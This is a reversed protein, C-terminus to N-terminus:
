IYIGCLLLSVYQIVNVLRTIDYEDLIMHIMCKIGQRNIIIAAVTYDLENARAISNTVTM